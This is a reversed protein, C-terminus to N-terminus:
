RRGVSTGCGSETRPAMARVAPEQASRHYTMRQEAGKLHQM